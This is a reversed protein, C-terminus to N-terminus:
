LNLYGSSKRYLTFHAHLRDSKSCYAEVSIKTDHGCGAALSSPLCSFKQDIIHRQKPPRASIRRGKKRDDKPFSYLVISSSPNNPRSDYEHTKSDYGRQAYSFLASKYLM